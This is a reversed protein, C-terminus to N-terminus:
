HLPEEAPEVIKKQLASLVMDLVARQGAEHKNMVALCTGLPFREHLYEADRSSLLIIRRRDYGAEVAYKIVKGGDFSPMELDVLLLEPNELVKRLAVVPDQCTEVELNPYSEAIYGSLLKLFSHDDDIILVKGV